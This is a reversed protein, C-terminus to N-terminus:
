SIMNRIKHGASFLKSVKIPFFYGIQKDSLLGDTGSGWGIIQIHTVNQAVAVTEFVIVIRAEMHVAMTTTLYSIADILGLLM